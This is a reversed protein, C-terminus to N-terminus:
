VSQDIENLQFSVQSVLNIAEDQTIDRILVADVHAMVKM